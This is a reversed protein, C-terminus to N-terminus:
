IYADKFLLTKLGSKFRSLSHCNRLHAPLTNWLKPAAIAFARDGYTTLQSRQVTLLSADSSRLSRTPQYPEILDCLYSPAKGHLAKFTLLLIKFTINKISFFIQM